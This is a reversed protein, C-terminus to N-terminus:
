WECTKNQIITSKGSRLRRFAECIDCCLARGSCLRLPVAIEADCPIDGGAHWRGRREGRRRREGGRAQRKGHSRHRRKWSHFWIEFIINQNRFSALGFRITGRSLLKTRLAEKTKATTVINNKGIGSSAASFSLHSLPHPESIGRQQLLLWKGKSRPYLAGM